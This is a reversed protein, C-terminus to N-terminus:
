PEGGPNWGQQLLISRLDPPVYNPGKTIKGDPRYVPKGDAGLKSFNARMIEDSIPEGNIGFELRTGENIVDVDGLADAVEVIDIPYTGVSEVCLEHVIELLRLLRLPVGYAEFLELDEEAKLRARLKVRELPPIGPVAPAPVNNIRHFELVQGHLKTM